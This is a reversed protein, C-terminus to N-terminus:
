RHRPLPPAIGGYGVYVVIRERNHLNYVPHDPTDIYGFNAVEQESYGVNVVYYQQGDVFFVREERARGQVGNVDAADAGDAADPNDAADATDAGDPNNAADAANNAADATDAADPNDAADANDATDAGEAANAAEQQGTRLILTRIVRWWKRASTAYTHRFGVAFVCRITVMFTLLLSLGSSRWPQGLFKIMKMFFGTPIIEDESDRGPATFVRHDYGWKNSSVCLVDISDTLNELFLDLKVTHKDLKETSGKPAGRVAQPVLWNLSPAPTARSVCSCIVRDSIPGCGSTALIQPVSELDDANEAPSERVPLKPSDDDAPEEVYDDHRANRGAGVNPAPVAMLLLCILFMM